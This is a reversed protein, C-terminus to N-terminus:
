PLAQRLVATALIAATETRLIYPGLALFLAGAHRFAATEAESFGGEPGVVAVVSGTQPMLPMLGAIPRGGPSAVVLPGPLHDLAQGLRVSPGLVPVTLRGCQETAEIAIRHWRDLRAPSVEDGRASHESVLPRLVDVGAETCKEIAMEMRQTRVLGIWAEIHVAPPPEQRTLAGITCTVRTKAVADITAEYERGDGSFV